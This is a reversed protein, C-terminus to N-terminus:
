FLGVVTGQDNVDIRVAAPQSGLGPMTQMEGAIPYLFGAGAPLRM